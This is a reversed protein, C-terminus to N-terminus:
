VLVQVGLIGKPNKKDNSTTIRMTEDNKHFYDPVSHYTM